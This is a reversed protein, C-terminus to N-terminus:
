NKGYAKQVFDAFNDQTIRLFRPLMDGGPCSSRLRIFFEYSGMHSGLTFRISPNSVLFMEQNFFDGDETSETMLRWIPNPSIRIGQKDVLYLFGGQNTYFEEAGNNWVFNHLYSKGSDSYKLSYKGYPIGGISDTVEFYINVNPAPFVGFLTELNENFEEGGALTMDIIGKPMWADIYGSGGTPTEIRTCGYGNPDFTLNEPSPFLEIGDLEIIDRGALEEIKKFWESVDIETKKISSSKIIPTTPKIPPIIPPHSVPLNTVEPPKPLDQGRVLTGIGPRELPTKNQKGRFLLGAGVGVLLVLPIVVRRIRM